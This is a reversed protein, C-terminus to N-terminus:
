RSYFSSEEDIGTNNVEVGNEKEIVKIRGCPRKLQIRGAASGIPEQGKQGLENINNPDSKSVEMYEWKTLEM